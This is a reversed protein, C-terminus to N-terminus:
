NFQPYFDRTLKIYEESYNGKADYVFLRNEEVSCAEPRFELLIREPVQENKTYVFCKRSLYYGAHNVASLIEEIGASPVILSFRGSPNLLGVTKEIMRRFEEGSFHRANSRSEVPAKLANLFYPPNTVLHDFRTKFDM